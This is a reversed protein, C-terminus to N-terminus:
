HTLMYGSFLFNIGESMKLDIIVDSSVKYQFKVDHIYNSKICPVHIFTYTDDLETHYISTGADINIFFSAFMQDLFNEM